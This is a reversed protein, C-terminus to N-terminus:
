RERSRYGSKCRLLPWQSPLARNERQYLLELDQFEVPGSGPKPCLEAAIVWRTSLFVAFGCQVVLMIFSLPLLRCESCALRWDSSCWVAKSANSCKPNIALWDTTANIWPSHHYCEGERGEYSLRLRARPPGFFVRSFEGLKKLSSPRSLM